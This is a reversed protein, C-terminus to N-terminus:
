EKKDADQEAKLAMNVVDSGANPESMALCGMKEGSCLMPLWKAKMEETGFRELQGMCLNTHAIQSLAIGGSARSLEETALGHALHGMGLGGQKEDVALGLLGNEGFLTMLQRPFEDKKDVEDAIPKVENDALIRVSERLDM